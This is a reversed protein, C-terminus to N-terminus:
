HISVPVGPKLRKALQVVDWNALRVCGHSASRGISDPENTGHLGIGKKNLAIWVVGVPNRPGPPLNYFNGSREGHNLMEKDWRFVPLHSIEKVVWDGVPSELHASGVTVPYAAVLKDGERVELMNTKTDVKVSLSSASPHAKEQPASKEKKSGHEKEATDKVAALDFPPVNPVRVQDGARLSATKGPNLKEFFGRDCHFKEAVGDAISPYPLWKLKAQQAIAHPLDGANQVDDDTVTYEIFVPNVSGLDLGDVNPKPVKENHKKRGAEAPPPAGISERCLALAKLTFDGYRGDIKGPGFNMRDLFIQLRAAEEDVDATKPTAARSMAALSVMAAIVAFIRPLSM